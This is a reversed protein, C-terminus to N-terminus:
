SATKGLIAKTKMPQDKLESLSMVKNPSVKPKDEIDARLHEPLMRVKSERLFEIPKGKEKSVGKSKLREEFVSKKERRDIGPPASAPRPTNRPARAKM